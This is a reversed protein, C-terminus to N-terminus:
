STHPRIRVETYPSIIITDSCCVYVWYRCWATAGNSVPRLASCAIAHSYGTALSVYFQLKTRQSSDGFASQDKLNTCVNYSSILCLCLSAANHSLSHTVSHTLFLVHDFFM